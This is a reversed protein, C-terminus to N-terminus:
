GKLKQKKLMYLFTRISNHFITKISQPGTTSVRKGVIIKQFPLVHLAVLFFKADFYQYSWSNHGKLIHPKENQLFFHLTYIIGMKLTKIFFLGESVWKYGYIYIIPGYRMFNDINQHLSKIKPRTCCHYFSSVVNLM